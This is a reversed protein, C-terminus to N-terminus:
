HHTHPALYMADASSRRGNGGHLYQEVHLCTVQQARLCRGAVLAANCCAKGDYVAREESVLTPTNLESSLEVVHLILSLESYM